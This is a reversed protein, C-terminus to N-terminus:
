AAFGVVEGQEHGPRVTAVLVDDAQAIGVVADAEPGHGGTAVGAPPVVDACGANQVGQVGIWVPACEPSICIRICSVDLVEDLTGRGGAQM